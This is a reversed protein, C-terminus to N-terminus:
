WTQLRQLQPGGQAEVVEGLHWDAWGTMPVEPDPRRKEDRPASKLWPTTPDRSGDAVEGVMQRIRDDGNHARRRLLGRLLSVPRRGIPSFNSFRVVPKFNERSDIQFLQRERPSEFGHKRRSLALQCKSLVDTTPANARVAEM